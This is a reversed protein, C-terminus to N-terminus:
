RVTGSRVFDPISALWPAGAGIAWRIFVSSADTPLSAINGAYATWQQIYDEVNSLYFVSVVAAHDRVYRGVARITKPGAFDGVLPVILNKEHMAKIRAYNEPSALYSWNRGDSATTTMLTTYGPSLLSASFSVVGERAFTLYITRIRREDNESLAFQRKTKLRAMIDKFYKETLEPDSKAQAYARFIAQVSSDATLGAPRKRSFLMAVFDPRDASMEFIAKYMLHELMMDRRIDVIFAIKPRIAAIYTFNQEPGVGMYVGGPITSKALQPVPYQYMTENSTIVVYQYYGDPESFDAIMKWFAADSLQAPLTDAAGAAPLPWTSVSLLLAALAAALGTKLRM